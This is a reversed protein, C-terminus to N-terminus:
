ELVLKVYVTCKSLESVKSEIRQYLAAGTESLERLHQKGEALHPEKTLNFEALSRNSAM